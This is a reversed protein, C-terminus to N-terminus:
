GLLERYFSPGELREAKAPMHPSAVEQAESADVVKSFTDICCMSERQLPDCVCGKSKEM